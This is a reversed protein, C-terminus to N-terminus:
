TSTGATSVEVFGWPGDFQGDGAGRSEGNRSSPATRPSSRSGTTGGTPWTCTGPVTWRSAVPTSDYFQGDASGNEGWAAISTGDATFREVPARLEGIVLSFVTGARDIALDVANAEWKTVYHYLQPTPTPTPTPAGPAFKQVRDANIDTVYVNGAGDVAVMHPNLFQGAEPGYSGMETIFVGDPSFKQVRFNGHDVM